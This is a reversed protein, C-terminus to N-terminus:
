NEQDYTKIWINRYSVKRDGGGELQIALRGHSIFRGPDNDLVLSM